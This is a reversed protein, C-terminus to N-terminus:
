GDRFRRRRLFWEGGFLVGMLVYSLTTTYAVWWPMPAFAALGGAATANVVFFSCWIWTWLRCWQQKQVTLEPEQLRAFREIMPMAGRRLTVGFVALMVLSIVVPEAFLWASEDFWASGAIAAVTLLPALVLVFGAKGGGVRRVMWWCVPVLLCLLAIAVQRPSRSALGIWVLLPYLAFLSGVLVPLWRNRRPAVEAASGARPDQPQTRPDAAGAVSDRASADAPM